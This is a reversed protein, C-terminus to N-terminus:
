LWSGSRWQVRKKNPLMRSSYHHKTFAHSPTLARSEVGPKGLSGPTLEYEAQHLLLLEGVASIRMMLVNTLLRKMQQSRRCHKEQSALKATEFSSKIEQISTKHIPCKGSMPAATLLEM